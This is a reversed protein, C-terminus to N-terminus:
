LELHSNIEAWYNFADIEKKSEYSESLLKKSTTIKGTGNCNNCIDVEDEWQIKGTGKCRPCQKELNM